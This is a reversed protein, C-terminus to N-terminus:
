SKVSPRISSLISHYKFVIFDEQSSLQMFALYIKLLTTFNIKWPLRDGKTKRHSNGYHEALDTQPVVGYYMPYFRHTFFNAYFSLLNEIFNHFKNRM